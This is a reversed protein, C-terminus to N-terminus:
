ASVPEAVERTLDLNKRAAEIALTGVVTDLLARIDLDICELELKEAKIKSLDLVDNVTTM